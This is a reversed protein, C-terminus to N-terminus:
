EVQALRYFVCSIHEFGLCLALVDGEGDQAVRAKRFLNQAILSASPLHNRIENGIGNLMGWGPSYCNLDPGCEGLGFAVSM